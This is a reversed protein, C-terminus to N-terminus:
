KIRLFERYDKDNMVKELVAKRVVEGKSFYKEGKWGSKWVIYNWLRPSIVFFLRKEANRKRIYKRM